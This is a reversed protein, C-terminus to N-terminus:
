LWQHWLDVDNITVSNCKMNNDNVVVYCNNSNRKGYLVNKGHNDVITCENLAFHVM